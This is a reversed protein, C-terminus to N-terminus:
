QSPEAHDGARWAAGAALGAQRDSVHGQAHLWGVTDRLTERLPRWRVDLERTTDSDDVPPHHVVTWVSAYSFGPDIGRRQAADALRGSALAVTPPVRLALLRHGVTRELLRFFEAFPLWHGGMLYRRPGRGSTFLRAHADAVDRVDVFGLGGKTMLRLRGRLIDRVLSATEGMHPQHPGYVGAPNTTVVPAGQAQLDRAIREGAAKSELYPGRPTGVPSSNTLRAAPLLALTTSVHVVPDLGGAVGADLVQRTGDINVKQMLDADAANFSYVNAAHLLADVGRVAREVAERDLVDGPVVDVREETIGLPTLAAAVRSRERALLVVEHGAELLAAVCYSGVFGTGGTVLIRM